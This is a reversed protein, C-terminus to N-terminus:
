ALAAAVARPGLAGRMLALLFRHLKEPPYQTFKMQLVLHASGVLMLAANEADLDADIDGERQGRRITAEIRAVMAAHFELFLPWIEERVASSWELLVRAYDSRRDVSAAFAIANDFLARAAPIEVRFHEDTMETYFRVIADLVGRTLDARTRFYAFVTPVAVKAERAIEAHAARELGRRAFVEVARSLIQARRDQPSMRNARMRTVSM